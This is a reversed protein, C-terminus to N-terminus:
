QLRSQVHLCKKEQELIEVINLIGPYLLSVFGGPM